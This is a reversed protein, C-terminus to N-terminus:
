NTRHNMGPNWASSTASMRGYPNFGNAPTSINRPMQNPSMNMASRLGSFGTFGLSGSGLGKNHGEGHMGFPGSSSLGSNNGFLGTSMGGGSNSGGTRQADSSPGGEKAFHRATVTNPRSFFTSEGFIDSLMEGRGYQQFLPFSSGPASSQGLPNGIPLPNYGSPGSPPNVPTRAGSGRGDGAKM